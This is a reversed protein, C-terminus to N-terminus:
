FYRILFMAIFILSLHLPYFIYFFYKNKINGRKGNYFFIVACAILTWVSPFTQRYLVFLALFLVIAFIRNGRMIYFAAILLVGYWTYDCSIAFAAAAAAATGFIGVAINKAGGRKAADACCMACLGLFLTFFVNQAGFYFPFTGASMTYGGFFVMDFPLESILAFLFLMGAYKARNKTYYFGESLLFCFLPFAVTGIGQLISKNFLTLAGYSEPAIFPAANEILTFIVTKSVHDILMAIVAIYKLAAGSLFTYRKM